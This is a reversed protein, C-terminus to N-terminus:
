TRKRLGNEILKGATVIKKIDNSYFADYNIQDEAESNEFNLKECILMEQGTEGKIHCGVLM